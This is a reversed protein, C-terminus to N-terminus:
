DEKYNAINALRKYAANLFNYPEKLAERARGLNEGPILLTKIDPYKEIAADLKRLENGPVVVGKSMIGRIAPGIYVYFASPLTKAVPAKIPAKQEPPQTKTEVKKNQEKKIAM